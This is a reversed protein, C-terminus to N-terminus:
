FSHYDGCGTYCEEATCSTPWHTQLDKVHLHFEEESNLSVDPRMLVYHFWFAHSVSSPREALFSVYKVDDCTATLFWETLLKYRTNMLGSPASLWSWRTGNSPMLGLRTGCRFASHVGTSACMRGCHEQVTAMVVTCSTALSSATHTMKVWHRCCCSLVIVWPMSPPTWWCTPDQFSCLLHMPQGTNWSQPDGCCATQQCKRLALTLKMDDNDYWIGQLAPIQRLWRYYVDYICGCTM